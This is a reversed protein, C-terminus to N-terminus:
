FYLCFIHRKFDIGGQALIKMIKGLTGVTSKNGHQFSDFLETLEVLGNM